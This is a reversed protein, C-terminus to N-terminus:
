LLGKGIKSVANGETAFFCPGDVSYKSVAQLTINMMKATAIAADLPTNLGLSPTAKNITVVRTPHQTRSRRLWVFAIQSTETSRLSAVAPLVEYTPALM